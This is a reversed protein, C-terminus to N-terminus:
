LRSFRNFVAGRRDINQCRGPREDLAATKKKVCATSHPKIKRTPPFRKTVQLLFHAVTIEFMVVARVPLALGQQFGAAISQNYCHELRGDLAPASQLCFAIRGRFPPSYGKRCIFSYIFKKIKRCYNLLFCIRCLFRPRVGRSKDSLRLITFRMISFKEQMM